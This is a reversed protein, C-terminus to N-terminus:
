ILKILIFDKINYIEKKEKKDYICFNLIKDTKIDNYINIKKIVDIEFILKNNKDKLKNKIKFILRNDEEKNKKLLEKLDKSKIQITKSYEKIVEKKEKDEKIIQKYVIFRKKVDNYNHTKIIENNENVVKVTTNKTYFDYLNHYKKLKDKKIQEIIKKNLKQNNYYLKKFISTSLQLNSMTFIRIKHNKKYGNFNKIDENKYNKLLYKIIYSSGKSEKLRDIQCHTLKHKKKLTNFKKVVKLYTGKKIYFIRHLHCILSSHPEIVKIFKMEKNERKKVNKYLERFILNINEYSEDIRNELNFYKFNSNLGKFTKKNKSTLFPHFESPNTLTIFIPELDEERSIRDIEKCKLYTLYKYNNFDKIIDKNMNVLEKTKTNQLLCKKFYRNNKIEERESIEKYKKNILYEYEKKLTNDIFAERNKFDKVKLM